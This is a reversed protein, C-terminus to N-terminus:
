SIFKELEWMHTFVHRMQRETDPMNWKAGHERTGDINGCIVVSWEKVHIVLIGNHICVVSEKKKKLILM